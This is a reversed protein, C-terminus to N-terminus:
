CLAAIQGRCAGACHADGCAGAWGIAFTITHAHGGANGATAHGAHGANGANGAHAATMPM